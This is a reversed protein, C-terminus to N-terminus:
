CLGRRSRLDNALQERSTHPSLIHLARLPATLVNLIAPLRKLYKLLLPSAMAKLNFRQTVYLIM